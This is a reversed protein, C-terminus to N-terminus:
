EVRDSKCVLRLGRHVRDGRDPRVLQRRRVLGGDLAAHRHDGAANTLRHYVNGALPILVDDFATLTVLGCYTRGVLTREKKTTMSVVTSSVLKKKRGKKGCGIRFAGGPFFYTRHGHLQRSMHLLEECRIAQGLGFQLRIILRAGLGIVGGTRDMGPM